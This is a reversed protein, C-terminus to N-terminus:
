QFVQPVFPISRGLFPTIIHLWFLSSSAGYRTLEHFFGVGFPMWFRSHNFGNLFTSLLLGDVCSSPQHRDGLFGRGARASLPDKAQVLARPDTATLADM